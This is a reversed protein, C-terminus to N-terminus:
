SLKLHSQPLLGSNLALIGAAMLEPFEVSLHTAEMSVYDAEDDGFRALLCGVFQKRCLYLDYKRYQDTGYHYIKRTGLYFCHECDHNFKPM